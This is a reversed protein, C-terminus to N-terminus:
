IKRMAEVPRLRIAKWAPYIAGVIATLCVAVAFQGYLESQLKPYVVTSMGFQSLGGRFTTLDIGTQALWSVTAWGLLLGPLLALLALLITELVIMGFVRVKNMGIAMLMGLERYRELVAMLMTNVIGFLLALMIILMFINASTQIQGEYLQLDPAVERYDEVLLKPLSAAVERQVAPLQTIDSLLFSLEHAIDEQGLLRNLDARRVLVVSENLMKNGSDYLGVVRFAGATIDGNLDQFTLVVKSRIKVQLKKALEVGIVIPNKKDGPLFDGEVIQQEIPTTHVEAEPDIGRVQVGRTSRSSAIMAQTLTRLAVGTIRSDAQWAALPLDTTFFYHTVKAEERYAAQHVQLHGIGNKIANDVYSQVMGVTFSLMFVLAWIGLVIAGIIVFSRTPNRWINRWALTPIM